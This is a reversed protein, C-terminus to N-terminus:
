PKQLGRIKIAAMNTPGMPSATNHKKTTWFSLSFSFSIPFAATGTASLKRAQQSSSFKLSKQFVTFFYKAFPRFKGHSYGSIDPKGRHADCSRVSEVEPAATTMFFRGPFFWRNLSIESTKIKLDTLSILSFIAILENHFSLFHRNFRHLLSLM